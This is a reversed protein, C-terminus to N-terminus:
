RGGDNNSKYGGWWQNLYSSITGDEEDEHSFQDMYSSITQDDMQLYDQWANMNDGNVFDQWQQSNELQRRVFLFGLLLFAAPLVCCLIICALTFGCCCGLLGGGDGLRKSQYLPPPSELRYYCSPVTATPPPQGRLGPDVLMKVTPRQQGIESDVELKYPTNNSASSMMM